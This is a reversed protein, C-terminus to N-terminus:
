QNENVYLTVRNQVLKVTEELTKDGAFYPGISERVINALADNPWYIQTTNNVLEEFRLVDDESVHRIPLSAYNGDPFISYPPYFDPTKILSSIHRDFAFDRQISLKYNERNVPIQMNAGLSETALKELDRPRYQQVIQKRILDWAEEKYRCTSSMALINGSAIFFNGSGGEKTPYGPFAARKGWVTDTDVLDLMSHVLTSELLQRGNRIRWMIEYETDEVSEDKAEDPFSNLFQLVNRFEESDFLSRGVEWDIYKDLTCSILGSFVEWRTANYRLITSEEPMASFVEMLEDFTWGYRKGVLDEPGMLTAVRVKKFLIFLGGNIEAAKLLTEQVNERGLDPDNEIYPWLDELYGKQAMQRYPMWYENEPRDTLMPTYFENDGRNERGPKPVEYRRMEMTDPVRGAALEVLLRQPGNEDSYDRVEIQVDEHSGNFDNIYSQVQRSVPNLAAYIMVGEGPEPPLEMRPDQDGGGTGCATLLLAAVALMLFRKKM